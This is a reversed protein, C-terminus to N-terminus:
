MYNYICHKGGWGSGNNHNQGYSGVKWERGGRRGEVKAGINEVIIFQPRDRLGIVEKRLFWCVVLWGRIIGM